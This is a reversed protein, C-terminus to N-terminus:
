ERGGIQADLVRAKRPNRVMALPSVEVAVGRRLRILSSGIRPQRSTYGARLSDRDQNRTERVPVAPSLRDGDGTDGGVKPSGGEHGRSV